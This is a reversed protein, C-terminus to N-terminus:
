KTEEREKELTAIANLTDQVKKISGMTFTPLKGYILEEYLKELNAHAEHWLSIQSRNDM